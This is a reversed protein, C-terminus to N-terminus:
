QDKRTALLIRERGSLDLEVRVAGYRGDALAVEAALAARRADVEIALLGGVELVDGAGHIIHRTARMGDEGSFLAIPPEWDRVSSPLTMAEGCAIYPPNSVIVRARVGRVPALLSGHRFEVPARLAAQLREANTRAVALAGLCVDTAIVRDFKGESALSLAIAGSGTGIDVAIGGADAGTATAWDLVSEVLVETEQRPVLVREDVDLTLHRFAARGVAYAFPAGSARKSAAQRAVASVDEGLSEEPHASPWFRPMDLVAAVIDRAERRAEPVAAAHLLADLEAVLAGVSVLGGPAESPGDGRAIEPM